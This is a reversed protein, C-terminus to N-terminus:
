QVEESRERFGNQVKTNDSDITFAQRTILTRKTLEDTVTLILEYEGPAAGALSIGHLRRLTGSAAPTIPTPAARKFLAGAGRLEYGATVRPLNSASDRAAGYVMYQCYLMADMPFTRRAILV